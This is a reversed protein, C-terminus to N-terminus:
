DGDNVKKAVMTDILFAVEIAADVFQRPSDPKLMNSASNSIRAIRREAAAIREREWEREQDM